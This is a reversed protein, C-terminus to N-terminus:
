CSCPEFDEDDIADHMDRAAQSMEPRYNKAPEDEILPHSWAHRLNTITRPYVCLWFMQGKNVVVNLFPDVIGILTGASRTARQGDEATNTIGVHDGAVLREGAIVPEVACHIADRRGNTILTGITTLADDIQEAM